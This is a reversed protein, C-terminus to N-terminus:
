ADGSGTLRETTSIRKGCHRCQRRRVIRGRTAPRTYVVFFDRCGCEACVLGKDEERESERARYAYDQLSPKRGTDGMM